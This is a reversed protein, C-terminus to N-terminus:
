LDGGIFALVRDGRYRVRVRVDHLGEIGNRARLVYRRPAVQEVSVSPVVQALSVRFRACGNVTPTLPEVRGRTARLAGEPVAPFIQLEFEHGDRVVACMGQEVPFLDVAAIFLREDDTRVADRALSLPLVVHEV